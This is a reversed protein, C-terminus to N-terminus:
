WVGLLSLAGWVLVSGVTGAAAVMTVPQDRFLQRILDGDDSFIKRVSDMVLYGVVVGPILIWLVEM